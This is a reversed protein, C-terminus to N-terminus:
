FRQKYKFQFIVNNEEKIQKIHHLSEEHYIVFNHKNIM